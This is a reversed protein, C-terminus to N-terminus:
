QSGNNELQEVENSTVKDPAEPYISKGDTLNILLCYQNGGASLEIVLRHITLTEPKHHRQLTSMLSNRNTTNFATRLRKTNQKIIWCMSKLKKKRTM